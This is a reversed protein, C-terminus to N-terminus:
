LFIALVVAVMVVLGAILGITILRNRLPPKEAERVADPEFLKIKVQETEVIKGFTNGQFNVLIKHGDPDSRIAHVTAQRPQIRGDEAVLNFLTNYKNGLVNNNDIRVMIELGPKLNSISVGTVPSLVPHSLLVVRDEGINFFDDVVPAPVDAAPAAQAQRDAEQGAFYQDVASQTTFEVAVDLDLKKKDYLARSIYPLIAHQISNLDNKKAFALFDAINTDKEMGRQGEVVQKLTSIVEATTKANFERQYRNKSIFEEFAVAPSMTSINDIYQSDLSALADVKELSKTTANIRILGVGCQGSGTSVFCMKVFLLSPSGGAEPAPKVDQPM